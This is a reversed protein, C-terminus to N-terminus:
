RAGRTFVARLTATEVQAQRALRDYEEPTGALELHRMLKSFHKLERGADCEILKPMLTQWALHMRMVIGSLKDPRKAESWIALERGNYELLSVETPIRPQYPVAVTAAILTIRNAQRMADLRSKANLALELDAITRKLRPLLILNAEDQIKDLASVMKKLRDLRKEARDLNGTQALQFVEVAVATLSDSENEIFGAQGGGDLPMSQQRVPSASEAAQAPVSPDIFEAAALLVFIGLILVAPRVIGRFRPKRIQKLGFGRRGHSTGVQESAAVRTM